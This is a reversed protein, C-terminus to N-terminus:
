FQGAISGGLPGPLFQISAGRKSKIALGARYHFAWPVVLGVLTGYGAGTLVDTAYHKDAAIRLYGTATAVAYASACTIADAASSEYLAFHAHHMCTLSAAAFTTATHGSFFSRYRTSSRCDQNDLADPGECERFYPRERSTFGAVMGDVGITLAIVEADLLGMQYAADPSQRMWWTVAFDDVILLNVESALLVDSVDSAAIRAGRTGFRLSNRVSEDFSTTGVWRTTNAPIAQSAVAGVGTVGTLIWEATSFKPVDWVVRKPPAIVPPPGPEVDAEQARSASAVTMATVFACAFVSCSQSHVPRRDNM